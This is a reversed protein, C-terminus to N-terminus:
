ENRDWIGSAMQQGNSRRYKGYRVHVQTPTAHTVTDVRENHRGISPRVIVTDGVKINQLWENNSM